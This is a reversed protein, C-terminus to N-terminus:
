GITKKERATKPKPFLNTTVEYLLHPLTEEVEIKQFLKRLFSILEEKLREYFEGM